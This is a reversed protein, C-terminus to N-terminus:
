MIAGVWGPEGVVLFSVHRMYFDILYPHINIMQKHDVGIVSAATVFQCIFLLFFFHNFQNFM